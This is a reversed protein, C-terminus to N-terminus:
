QCTVDDRPYKILWSQLKLDGLDGGEQYLSNGIKEIDNLYNDSKFKSYDRFVRRKKTERQM